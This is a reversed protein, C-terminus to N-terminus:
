LRQFSMLYCSIVNTCNGVSTCFDQSGFNNNRSVNKGQLESHKIALFLKKLTNKLLASAVM